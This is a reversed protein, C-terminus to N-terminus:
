FGPYLIATVYQDLPADRITEDISQPGILDKAIERLLDARFGYCAELHAESM